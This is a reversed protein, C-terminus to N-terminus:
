HTVCCMHPPPPDSILKQANEPQGPVKMRTSRASKSSVSIQIGLILSLHFSSHRTGTKQKKNKKKSVCINYRLNVKFENCVCPEGQIESGGTELDWNNLNCVHIVVSPKPKQNKFHDQYSTRVQRLSEPRRRM